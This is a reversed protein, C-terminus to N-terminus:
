HSVSNVGLIAIVSMTTIMTFNHHRVHKPEVIESGLLIVTVLSKNHEATKVSGSANNKYAQFTTECPSRHFHQWTRINYADKPM